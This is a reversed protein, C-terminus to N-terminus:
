NKPTEYLNVFAAFRGSSSNMDFISDPDIDQVGHLIGGDFMILSGVEAIDETFIKEGKRTKIYNGGEFYDKGKLSLTMMIQLFPLSSEKLIKPFHTDKHEVMFGGGQPYHHIRCANWYGDRNANSGFDEAQNLIKNRFGILKKFVASLFPYSSDNESFYTTQLFQAYPEGVGNSSSIAFKRWPATELISFHFKERPSHLPLEAFYKIYEARADLGLMKLEPNSFIAYGNSYVQSRIEEIDM